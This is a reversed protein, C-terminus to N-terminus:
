WSITSSKYGTAASLSQRLRDRTAPDIGGLTEWFRLHLMVSLPDQSPDLDVDQTLLDWQARADLGAFIGSDPIYGQFQPGFFSRTVRVEELIHANFEDLEEAPIWLEQHLDEAGVVQVTFKQLYESDVRFATVYGAFGSAADGTNWDRAIQIAYDELLVPYFIPQWEFRPPFARLDLEFIRVM